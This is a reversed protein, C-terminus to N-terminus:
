SQRGYVACLDRLKKALACGAQGPKMRWGWNGRAKAPSNMRSREDLGLLDQMPVIAASATSGMVLRMLKWHVDKTTVKTGLYAELTKRRRRDVENRLWGVTTNNDHTGTYVVMNRQHNHPAHINRRADGNFGFQVVKMTPLNYKAILERVGPTIFGLDEAIIAAGPFLRYLEEFFVERPGPVWKGNQATKDGAKVEWYAEFGRFHDIRVLDYLRLNHGIREMWWAYRDEAQREWDYVPNGWLQGTRSFYDPPVGAIFRPRRSRDLKFLEPHGWVDASDYTVYIPLDGFIQIGKGNCYAKLRLYQRAFVFQVFMEYAIRESLEERAAALNRAQRDRLGRPWDRFKRGRYKKRLAMFLAFDALWYANDKIFQEYDCGAGNQSFAEFARALLANKFREAGAFDAKGQAFRPAEALDKKRLFGERVLEEPSILLPNGAFASYSSYPSCGMKTSTYNLPLIQWYNQQARELFDAFRYAAPGFDGIGFSGPLSTIHLLIGSSRKRLM